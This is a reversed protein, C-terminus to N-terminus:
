NIVKHINWKELWVGGDSKPSFENLLPRSQAVYAPKRKAVVGRNSPSGRSAIRMDQKAQKTLSIELHRRSQVAVSFRKSQDRNEM